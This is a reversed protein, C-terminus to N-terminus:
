KPDFGPLHGPVFLFSEGAADFKLNEVYFTSVQFISINTAEYLWRYPICTDFYWM